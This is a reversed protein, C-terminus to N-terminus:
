MFGTKTMIRTMDSQFSIPIMFDERANEETREGDGGKTEKKIMEDSPSKDDRPVIMTRSMKMTGQGDVADDRFRGEYVAGNTFVITGRGERRGNSFSGEYRQGNPYIASGRGEMTNNVWQGEYVFGDAKKLLGQGNRKGDKWVGDYMSNDPWTFAGVGNMVGDRWQGDYVSGDPLFYRGMGNRLNERFEGTYRSGLQLPDSSGYYYTGTGQMRGREWEGEYIIKKRDSSMLKGYGHEKNRKWEGEYLTGDTFLCIGRGERKTDVMEGEYIVFKPKPPAVKNANTTTGNDGSSNSANGSQLQQQQQQQQQLLARQEPDVREYYLFHAARWRAKKPDGVSPLRIYTSGSKTSASGSASKGVSSSRRKTRLGGASGGSPSRRRGGSNVISTSNASGTTIKSQTPLVLRSKSGRGVGGVSMSGASGTSMPISISLNSGFKGATSSPHGTASFPTSSTTTFNAANGDASINGTVPDISMPSKQASGPRTRKRRRDEEPDYSARKWTPNRKRTSHPRPGEDGLASNPSSRRRRSSAPPSAAQVETVVYQRQIEMVKTNLDLYGMIEFTGYENEGCGRVQVLSIVGKTEEGINGEGSSADVSASTTLATQETTSSTATKSEVIKRVHSKTATEFAFLDLSPYNKTESDDKGQEKSTDNGTDGEDDNSAASATDSSSPTANLFLYFNEDVKQIQPPQPTRNRGSKKGPIVNEFYGKWQGSSPCVPIKEKESNYRGFADVFKPMLSAFTIKAPAAEKTELPRKEGSVEVAVPDTTTTSSPISVKTTNEASDKEEKKEGDTASEGVVKDNSKVPQEVPSTSVLTIEKDVPSEDNKETATDTTKTGATSNKSSDEVDMTKDADEAKEAKNSDDKTTNDSVQSSSSSKPETPATATPTPSISKTTETKAIENEPKDVEEAEVGSQATTKEVTAPPVAPPQTSNVGKGDDGSTTNDPPPSAEQQKRSNDNGSVAQMPTDREMEESADVMTQIEEEEESDDGIVKVNLSPVPITSPDFGEQWKYHFPQSTDKQKKSSHSKSKSGSAVAGAETASSSEAGVKNHDAAVPVFDGFVWRGNWSWEKTEEDYALIGRLAVTAM